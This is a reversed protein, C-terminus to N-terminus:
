KGSHQNHPLTIANQEQTYQATAFSELQLKSQNLFSEGANSDKMELNVARILIWTQTM